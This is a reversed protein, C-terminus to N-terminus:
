RGAWTASSSLCWGLTVTHGVATRLTPFERYVINMGEACGLVVLLVAM